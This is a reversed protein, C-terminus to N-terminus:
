PECSPRKIDDNNIDVFFAAPFSNIEASINTGIGKPFNQNTDIISAIESNGGNILLNLNNFSVDGLILDMDNDGDIDLALSSSGSHAGSSRIQFQNNSTNEPCSEFEYSNLGEFFEGWCDTKLEYILSDCHGFLEQSQNQHYEVYNGSQKFTLVDIDGDYDVDVFAPIDVSSIIIGNQITGYDSIIAPSELEFILTENQSINKFVKIYSDNYTFIDEKGDCNYDM